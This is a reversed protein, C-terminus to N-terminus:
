TPRRIRAWAGDWDVLLAIAVASMPIVAILFRPEKLRIAFSAAVAIIVYAVPVVTIPPIRSRITAALAVAAGAVFIILPGIVVSVISRAWAVLGVRLRKDANYPGTASGFWRNMTSFLESSGISAAYGFWAAFALPAPIGVAAGARWRGRWVAYVVAVLWFAFAIEKLMVAIAIALGSLLWREHIMLYLALVLFFCLPVEMRIFWSYTAFFPNLAVLMSGVLAAGSGRLELGIRFVLLVTLCGLVLSASRLLIESPGGLATVAAVFYVYLPTHDFFLRPEPFAYTRLPLGTRVIQRGVDLFIHEDFDLKPQRVIRVGTLVLLTALPLLAAPWARRREGAGETM